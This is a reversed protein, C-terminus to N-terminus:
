AQEELWAILESAESRGYLRTILVEWKPRLHYVYCGTGASEVDVSALQPKVLCEIANDLLSEDGDSRPVFRLWDEVDDRESRAKLEVLCLVLRLFALEEALANLDRNVADMETVLRDIRRQRRGLEWEVLHTGLLRDVVLLTRTWLWFSWRM